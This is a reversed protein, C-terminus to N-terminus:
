QLNIRRKDTVKEYDVGQKDQIAKHVKLKEKYVTPISKVGTNKTVVLNEAGYTM